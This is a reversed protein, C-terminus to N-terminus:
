LGIFAMLFSRIEEKFIDTFDKDNITIKEIVEAGEKQYDKLLVDKFQANIHLKYIPNKAMDELLTLIKDLKLTEQEDKSTNKQLELSSKLIDVYPQLANETDLSFNFKLDNISIFHPLQPLLLDFNVKSLENTSVKKKLILVEEM